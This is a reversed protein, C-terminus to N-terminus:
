TQWSSNGQSDVQHIRHKYIAVFREAIRQWNLETEVKRLSARGMQERLAPEDLLMNIAQALQEPDREEVLLGTEGNDVALPIGAVNSAVVPTGTAM